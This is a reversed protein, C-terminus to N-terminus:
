DEHIHVWARKNKILYVTQRSVGFRKALGNTSEGSTYIEMAKEATLRSMGHKEGKATGGVSRGKRQMDSSNAQATGLWLHEPNVCHRVDCSHCVLLGDPIPGKHITYSYRHAMIRKTELTFTGYGKTNPTLQWEWCGTAPNVIYHRYFDEPKNPQPM